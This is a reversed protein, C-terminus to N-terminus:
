SARLPASSEGSRRRGEYAPLGLRMLLDRFRRTGRLPDLGYLVGAFVMFPNRQRYAAYLRDLAQETSGLAALIEASYYSAPGGTEGRQDLEWLIQAARARDGISACARGLQSLLLSSGNTMEVGQEFTKIASAFDGLGEQAMGRVWHAQILSPQGELVFDVERLGREFQRGFVCVMGYYVSIGAIDPFDDRARDLIALAEETRGMSTLFYLAYGVRSIFALPDVELAERYLREALVWDYDYCLTVHALTGRAEGLRPDLRIARSAHARVRPWGDTGPYAIYVVAQCLAASLGSHAEAYNPSLRLAREYSEVAKMITVPSRQGAFQRAELCLRRADPTVVRPRVFASPTVRLSPRFRSVPSESKRTGDSTVGMREADPLGIRETEPSVCIGLDARFREVAAGYLRAAGAGDGVRRLLEIVERLLAEDYPARELAFRAWDASQVTDGDLESGKALVLAGRVARRHLRERDARLWAEFEFSGALTFGNLLEGRYLALADGERGRDLHDEFTRVDVHLGSESIGVEDSGRSVLTDAPLHARLLHLSQRLSNRGHGPDSDPWFLALLDDRRHLGRPLAIALYALLALAKPRALLEAACDAGLGTIRPAGFLRLTLPESFNQTNSRM